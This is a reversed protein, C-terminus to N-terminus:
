VRSKAREIEAELHRNEQLLESIQKQSANLREQLWQNYSKADKLEKEHRKITEVKIACENVQEYYKSRAIKNSKELEEIEIFQYDIKELLDNYRKNTLIKM